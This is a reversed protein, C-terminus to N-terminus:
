AMFRVTLGDLKQINAQGILYWGHSNKNAPNYEIRTQIWRNIFGVEFCDGCHLDYPEKGKRVMWYRKSNEDYFLRGSKM